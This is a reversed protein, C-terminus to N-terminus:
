TAVGATSYGLSLTTRKKGSANPRLSSFLLTLPGIGRLDVGVHDSDCMWLEEGVVESAVAEFHDHGVHEVIVGDWGVGEVGTHLEVDRGPEAFM